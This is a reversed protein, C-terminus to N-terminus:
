RGEGATGVAKSTKKKELLKRNLKIVETESLGSSKAAELIGRGNKLMIIAAKKKQVEIIKRYLENLKERQEPLFEGSTRAENVAKKAELTQGFHICSKIYFIIDNYKYTIDVIKKITVLEERKLQRENLREKCHSIYESFKKYDKEKFDDKNVRKQIDISEKEIDIEKENNKKKVSKRERKQIKREEKLERMYNYITADSVNLRKAIEEIDIGENYLELTKKKNEGKNISKRKRKQIKGEEKLERIYKNITVHSTNLRKAIEKIDIGENYLEITKEKNEKKKINREKRKQVKGEKELERIYKNITVHSMNLRKAIEEIHIGQNYLELTKEKNEEKKNKKRRQVKGEGELEKIYTNITETSVGVREAIDKIGKNYLELTKKKKEEKKIKKRERRQIKGEKGLEKIYKYITVDSINLRKAIEEINAGENYLELTKKKREEKKINKRERKQVKGEDILEKIYKNITVVAVDLRKAIEEIEAGENFLELVKEKREKRSIVKIKGEEKLERM